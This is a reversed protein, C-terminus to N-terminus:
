VTVVKTGPYEAGNCGGLPGGTSSSTLFLAAEFDDNAMDVFPNTSSVSSNAEDGTRTRWGAIDTEDGGNYSAQFTGPNQVYANYDIDELPQAYEGMDYFGTGDDDNFLLNDRIRINGGTTDDVAIISAGVIPSAMRAFTNNFIDVMRGDSAGNSAVQIGYNSFDTFLNYDIVLRTVASIDAARVGRSMGSAYNHHIRGSNQMTGSNASGKVYAFVWCDITRNYAVSMDECGYTILFATNHSGTPDAAISSRLNRAINGEVRLGTIGEAWIVPYNGAIDDEAADIYCNLVGINEYGGNQGGFHFWGADVQPKANTWSTYFGDYYVNNQTCDFVASRQATSTGDGTHSVETRNANSSPTALATAAYAAYHVIPNDATGANTPAWAGNDSGTHAFQYLGGSGPWWCVYTGGTLATAGKAQDPTWANAFSTGDGSGSADHRVHRNATYRDPGSGGDGGPAVVGSSRLILFGM